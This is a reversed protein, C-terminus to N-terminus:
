SSPSTIKAILQQTQMNTAALNLTVLTSQGVLIRELVNHIRILEIFCGGLVIVVEKIASTFSAIAFGTWWKKNGFMNNSIYNILGAKSVQSGDYNELSGDIDTGTYAGAVSALNLANTRYIASMTAYWNGYNAININTGYDTSGVPIWTSDPAQLASIGSGGLFTITTGLDAIQDSTLVSAGPQPFLNQANVAATNISTISTDIFANQLYTNYTGPANTGSTIGNITTNIDNVYTQTYTSANEETSPVATFAKMTNAMGFVKGFFAGTLINLIKSLYNASNLTNTATNTTNTKITDASSGINATNMSINNLESCEDCDAAYSSTCTAILLFGTILATRIFHKASISARM